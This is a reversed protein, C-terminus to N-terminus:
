SRARRGEAERLLEEVVEMVYNAEGFAWRADEFGYLHDPPIGSEEDGYMSPEREHRLLRSILALRGIQGRFWSPFKGRNAKLAPLKM